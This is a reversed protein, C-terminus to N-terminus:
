YYKLTLSRTNNFYLTTIKLTFAESRSFNEKNTNPLVDLRGRAASKKIKLRM